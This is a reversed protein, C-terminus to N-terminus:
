EASRPVTISRKLASPSTPVSPCIAACAHPAEGGKSRTTESEVGAVCATSRALLRFMGWTKPSTADGCPM